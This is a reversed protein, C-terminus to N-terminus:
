GALQHHFAAATLLASLPQPPLPALVENDPRAAFVCKLLLLGFVLLVADLPWSLPLCCHLLTHTTEEKAYM